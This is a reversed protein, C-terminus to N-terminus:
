DQEPMIKKQTQSSRWDLWAGFLVAPMLLVYKWWPESFPTLIHVLANLMLIIVGTGAAYRLKHSESIWSSVWGAFGFATLGILNSLIIFPISSGTEIIEEASDCWGFFILFIGLVMIGGGSAVFYAGVGLLLPKIRM